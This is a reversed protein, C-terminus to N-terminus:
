RDLSLYIPDKKKLSFRTVNSINAYKVEGVQLYKELGFSVLIKKYYEGNFIGLEKLGIEKFSVFDIKEKGRVFLRRLNMYKEILSDDIENLNWNLWIKKPLDNNFFQDFKQNKTKVRVDFIEFCKKTSIEFLKCFDSKKKFSLPLKKNSFQFFFSREEKAKLTFNMTLFITSFCSNDLGDIASFSFKANPCVYNFYYIEKTLLNTIKINGNQKKFYFYGKKLPFNLYIKIKKENKDINKINFYINNGNLLFEKYSFEVNDKLIDEKILAFDKYTPNIIDDNVKFFKDKFKFDYNSSSKYNINLKNIMNLFQLNSSIESYFVCNKVKKLMKEHKKNIKELPLLLNFKEEESALEFAKILNANLDKDFKFVPYRVDVGFNFLLTKDVDANFCVPAHFRVRNLITQKANNIYNFNLM